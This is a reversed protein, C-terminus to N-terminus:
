MITPLWCAAPAMRSSVPQATSSMRQYAPPRCSPARQLNGTVIGAVPWSSEVGIPRHRPTTQKPALSSGGLAKRAMKGRFLNIGCRLACLATMCMLSRVHAAAGNRRRYYFGRCKSMVGAESGYRRVRKWQRRLLLLGASGGDFYIIFTLKSTVVIIFAM